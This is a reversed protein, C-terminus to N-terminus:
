KGTKIGQALTDSIACRSAIEIAVPNRPHDEAHTITVHDKQVAEDLLRLLRRLL